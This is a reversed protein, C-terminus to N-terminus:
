FQWIIGLSGDTIERVNGSNYTQRMYGVGAKLFINKRIPMQGDLTILQTKLIIIQNLPPVDGIDPMKGAGAKLAAYTDDADFYHRIGVEFFDVSKPTYHYPRFWVFNSGINKGISATYTYVNVDFTRLFRQGISAEFGCPFSFYPEILYQYHPYVRQSTNSIAGTLSLYSDKIFYFNKFLKPYAELQYQEGGIGYRNAYNVRAGFIGANTFRYYHLSSYSWYGGIDSVYAEDQDFGLENLPKTQDEAERILQYTPAQQRNTNVGLSTISAALTVSTSLLGVSFLTVGLSKRM